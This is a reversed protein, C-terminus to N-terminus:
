GGVDRLLGLQLGQVIPNSLQLLLDLLRLALWRRHRVRRRGGRYGARGAVVVREIAIPPAPRDVVRDTCERGPRNMAAEVLVVLAELVVLVEVVPAKEAEVM